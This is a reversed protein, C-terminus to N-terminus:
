SLKTNLRTCYRPWSPASVTTRRLSSTVGPSARPKSPTSSDGPGPVGSSAPTLTSITPVQSSSPTGQEADAEPVLGDGDRV